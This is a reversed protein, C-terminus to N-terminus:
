QNVEPAGNVTTEEPMKSVCGGARACVSVCPERYM